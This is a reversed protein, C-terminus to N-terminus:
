SGVTRRTPLVRRRRAEGEAGTPVSPPPPALPGTHHVRAPPPPPRWRPADGLLGREDIEVLASALRDPSWGLRTRLEGAEASGALQVVIAWADSSLTVPSSPGESLAVTRDTWADLSSTEHTKARIDMLLTATEWPTSGERPHQGLPDHFYWGTTADMVQSLLRVVQDRALPEALMPRTALESEPLGVGQEAAYVQGGTLYLTVPHDTNFEISGAVRHANAQRLVWEPPYRDLPGRRMM